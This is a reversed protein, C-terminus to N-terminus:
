GAPAAQWWDRFMRERIALLSVPDVRDLVNFVPVRGGSAAGVERFVPPSTLVVDLGSLLADLSGGDATALCELDRSLGLEAKLMDRYFPISHADRCVFGVRADKPFKELERRTEPSMNTVVAEVDIAAPAAIRRVESLHFGTTVVALPSRGGEPQALAAALGALLVGRVEVRLQSQLLPAIREVEYDNCETFLIYRPRAADSVAREFMQRAEEASHGVALAQAVAERLQAEARATIDPVSPASPAAPGVFTGRGRRMQILGESELEKYAKRVTEFNIGLQAALEVVGPLQQGKKIAGTSVAYRVFDRLQLYIPVRSERDVRWNALSAGTDKM